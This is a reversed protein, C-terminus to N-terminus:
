KKDKFDLLPVTLLKNASNGQKHSVSKSWLEVEQIEYIEDKTGVRANPSSEVNSYWKKFDEIEENSPKVSQTFNPSAIEEVNISEKCSSLIVPIAFICILCALKLKLKM